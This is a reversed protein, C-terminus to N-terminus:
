KLEFIFSESPEIKIKAIGEGNNIKLEVSNKKYLQDTLQYEGDKLNWKSIIDSPIKLDFENTKESSFNAVVILKQNESWRVYSYILEDYGANNQRNVSQIEQFSGM